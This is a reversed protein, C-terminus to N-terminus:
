VGTLRISLVKLGKHDKSKLGLFILNGGELPNPDELDLVVSDKGATISKWRTLPKGRFAPSPTSDGLYCPKDCTVVFRPNSITQTSNVRLLITGPKAIGLDIEAWIIEPKIPRGSADILNGNFSNKKGDVSLATRDPPAIIQNNDFTNGDAGNRFAVVPPVESLRRENFKDVGRIWIFLGLAACFSVMVTGGWYPHGQFWKGYIWSMWEFPNFLQEM